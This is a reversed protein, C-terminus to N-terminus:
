GNHYELVALAGEPMTLSTFIIFPAPFGGERMKMVLYSIRERQFLVM